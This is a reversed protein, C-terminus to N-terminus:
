GSKPPVAAPDLVGSLGGLAGVGAGLTLAGVASLDRAAEAPGWMTQATLIFGLASLGLFGGVVVGVTLSALFSWGRGVGLARLLRYGATSSRRAFSGLVLVGFVTFPMLYWVITTKTTTVTTTTTEVLQAFLM